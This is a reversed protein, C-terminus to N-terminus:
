PYIYKESVTQVTAPMGLILTPSFDVSDFSWIVKCAYDTKVKSFNLFKASQVQSAGLNVRFYLAREPGAPTAKLNLDYMYLGLENCTFELKGQTEGVKLPLYELNFANQFM